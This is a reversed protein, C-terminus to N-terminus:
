LNINLEKAWDLMTQIVLALEQKSCEGFSKPIFFEKGEIERKLILGAKDKVLLKVEAFNYGIDQSITRIMAHIRALQALTGDNASVEMYVDIIDGENCSSKFKEFESELTSNKHKVKGEKKIFKGTFM